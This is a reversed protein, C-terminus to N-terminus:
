LKTGPFKPFQLKTREKVELRSGEEAGRRRRQGAGGAATPRGRGGGAQLAAWADRRLKEVARQSRAPGRGGAGRAWRGARPRWRAAATSPGSCCRPSGDQARRLVGPSRAVCEVRGRARERGWVRLVGGGGRTFESSSVGATSGGRRLEEARASWEM